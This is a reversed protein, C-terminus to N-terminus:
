IMKGVDQSELLNKEGSDGPTDDGNCPLVDIGIVMGENSDTESNRQAKDHQCINVHWHYLILQNLPNGRYINTYDWLPIQLYCVVEASLM